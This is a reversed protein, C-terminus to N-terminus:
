AFLILYVTSGMSVVISMFTGNDTATIPKGSTSVHNLLSTLDAYLEGASSREEKNESLCQHICPKLPHEGLKAVLEQRESRTKVTPASQAILIMVVGFM